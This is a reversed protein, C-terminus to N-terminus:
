RSYKKSARARSRGLCNRRSITQARKAAQGSSYIGRRRGRGSSSEKEEEYKGEKRYRLELMVPRCYSVEMACRPTSFQTGEKPSTGPPIKSPMWSKRRLRKMSIRTECKSKFFLVIAKRQYAHDFTNHSQNSGKM